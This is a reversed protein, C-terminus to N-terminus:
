GMLYILLNNYLLFYFTRPSYLYGRAFGHNKASEFKAQGLSSNFLTSFLLDVEVKCEGVHLCTSSQGIPNETSKNSMM